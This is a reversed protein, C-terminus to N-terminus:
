SHSPAQCSWSQFISASISPVFCFILVLGAPTLDLLGLAAEAYWLRARPAPAARWCHLRLSIGAVMLLAILAVPSLAIALGTISEHDDSGCEVSADQRM